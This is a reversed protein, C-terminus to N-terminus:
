QSLKFRKIMNMDFSLSRPGKLTALGMSGVEGPQPNVLVVSGNPAVIAKNSYATNLGNAATVGDIGPDVIQTYGNFYFVGNALKSIHGLDKPLAGVLNPQAQVNSITQTGTATGVATGTTFTLPAGSNFNMIGGLQWKNVVQQVWNPANGLLNHGMGFPLEYTGNSTIQHARDFGLLTKEISRRTPDRYTAGTDTDSDGLTKSWTWTTTNTFGNSLRRTFQVQMSHYTSNGLNDLMSVSAFQPNPM